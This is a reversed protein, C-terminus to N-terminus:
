CIEKLESTSIVKYFGKNKLGNYLIKDGTWLYADLYISLAVFTVDDFDIDSTLEEAQQWIEAPIIELSILHIYKFLKNKAKYLEIDTLKSAKILKNYHKDLEELLYEPTYFRFQSFPSIILEALTGNSTALVSFVINTDVVIKM